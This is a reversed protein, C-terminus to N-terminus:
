RINITKHESEVFVTQQFIPQNNETVTIEHTGPEIALVKPKGNYLSTDGMNIGDVFLVSTKPVNAFSLTPRSDVTNVKTVPYRPACGTLLSVGVISLALIVNKM